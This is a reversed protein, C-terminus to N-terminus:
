LFIINRKIFETLLPEALEKAQPHPAGTTGRARLDFFHDWVEVFGTMVLETMLSNPLIARAQQPTWGSSILSNYAKETNELCTIFEDEQIEWCPEIFTIENGFKDLSYNCYRTSEGAFSAERHRVLERQILLDSTFLVSIDEHIMREEPTLISFNTILRVEYESANYYNIISDVDKFKEMIGNSCGVVADRLVLPIGLVPASTIFEQPTNIIFEMIEFTEYWARMNGSIIYRYGDNDDHRETFRLYCRKAELGLKKNVVTTISVMNNQMLMYTDPDVMFAISGHELMAMHNSKILANVMKIDTGETIKDESKYCVRAVREIKKTIFPENIIEYDAKIINM